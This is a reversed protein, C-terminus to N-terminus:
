IYWNTALYNVRDIIRELKQKYITEGYRMSYKIYANKARNKAEERYKLCKLIGKAFDEPDPKQLFACNDDLEQTHTRLNTAVIPVGSAMYEYIKLPTNTGKLRPSVLIDAEGIFTKVLNTELNGTFVTQESIQLEEAKTRMELVQEANGGLFIFLLEKRRKLIIQISKLYMELGQYPEFTGAYLIIRKGNINIIRNLDVNYLGESLSIPFFLTNQILEHKESYGFAKVQDELEKCITIIASARKTSLKELHEFVKVILKLSTFNFNELQQPLSSHMDYIYKFKFIFNFLLCFFVAEEHAHVVDYRNKLILRIAKLFLPIDLILKKISPGIKVNYVFPIGPSRIITVNEIEVDQGIPYTLLHVEHGLESLIKTRYYVSLPTGRASFFPQPAIMLIKM